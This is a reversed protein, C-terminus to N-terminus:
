RPSSRLLHCGDGVIMSALGIVAWRTRNSSRSCRNSTSGCSTRFVGLVVPMEHGDHM